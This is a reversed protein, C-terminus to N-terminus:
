FSITGVQTIEGQTVVVGDVTIEETLSDGSDLESVVMDYTGDTIGRILFKGQADIFTSFENQGDTLVIMANAAGEVEGQIGTSEDEIETIVPNILYQQGQGIISQAVQFDLLIDASSNSSVKEDIEIVVENSSGWVLNAEVMGSGSSGYLMLRTDNGFTLRLQTYVGAQVAGQYALTTENGNTLDLVNTYQANNNLTIWGKDQLYAEVKLIEVDLAAYDGPADTMRVRFSNPSDEESEMEVKNCSTVSIAIAAMVLFSLILKLKKM